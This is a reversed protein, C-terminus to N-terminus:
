KMVWRSFNGSALGSVAMRTTLAAFVMAIGDDVHMFGVLGSVDGPLGSLQSLILDQVSGLLISFGSFTVLQFGLALLVRGAISGAAQSLAAVLGVLFLPM